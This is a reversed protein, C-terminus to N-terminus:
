KLILKPPLCNPQPKLKQEIFENQVTTQSIAPMGATYPMLSIWLHKSFTNIIKMFFM